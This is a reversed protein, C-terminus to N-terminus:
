ELLRNVGAIVAEISARIIDVDVGSTSISRGDKILKVDVDVLADTGGSIADVHYEDLAIDTVDSIVKKLANIAADVPGIGVDAGIIDKKDISLRISATPTVNSGSVVNYEVLKVMPEREISLVNETIALLDGDTVKKGKDGIEKIKRLIEDVQESNADFGFDKLAIEVSTRGAHKGVIIKRKRGVMEPKIPEYTSPDTAIGHVHIGAEHTFANGGIMSKNPPVVVGTLRSVMRSLKYLLETKISLEQNYLFKLTAAVEELSANGAREGLGNVAVHVESAGNRLATISNATALGFDDHAHISLPIKVDTSLRSFIEKTREPTLIGVTDCLCARSAKLEEGERFVDILYDLNARSADEGSLEVILGHDNAYQISKATMERIEDRNKNTKRMHLNSVPVVLHISDVNCELAYDIDRQLPRAYTCIEANLGEDVIRKIGEREGKSVVASGAEIIDVGLEDLNKAILLKEEGTLSVGPTQEGDRLTTDLFRIKNVLQGCEKNDM